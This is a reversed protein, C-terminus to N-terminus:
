DKDDYWEEEIQKQLQDATESDPAANEMTPKAMKFLERFLALIINMILSGLFKM